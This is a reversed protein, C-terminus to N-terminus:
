ARASRLRRSYHQGTYVHSRHALGDAKFFQSVTSLLVKCYGFTVSTFVMAGQGRLRSHALLEAGAPNVGACLFEPFSLM